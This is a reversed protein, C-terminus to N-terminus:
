IPLVEIGPKSSWRKEPWLSWVMGDEEPWVSDILAKLMNDLDPRVTHPMEEMERKKKQSWGKPMPMWFIVKSPISVSVRCARVEDRFAFYALVVPRKKWRDRATMRPCALPM